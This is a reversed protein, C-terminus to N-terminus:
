ASRETVATLRRAADAPGVARAVVATAATMRVAASRVQLDLWALLGSPKRSCDNETELRASWPTSTRSPCRNAVAEPRLKHTRAPPITAGEVFTSAGHAALDRKKTSRRRYTRQAKGAPPAATARGTIATATVTELGNVSKAIKGITRTELEIETEKETRTGGDHTIMTETVTPDTALPSKETMMAISIRRGTEANTMTETEVVVEIAAPGNLTTLRHRGLDSRPSRKRPDRPRTKSPTMTMSAAAGISRAATGTTTMSMTPRLPAIADGAGHAKTATAEAAARVVQSLTLPRTSVSNVAAAATRSQTKMTGTADTMDMLGSKAATVTLTVTVIGTM